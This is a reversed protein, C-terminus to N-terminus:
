LASASISADDDVHGVLSAVQEYIPLDRYVSWDGGCARAFPSRAPTETNGLLDTGALHGGNVTYLHGVPHTEASAGVPNM